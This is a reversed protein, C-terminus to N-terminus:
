CIARLCVVPERALLRRLVDLSPLSFTQSVARDIDARVPDEAMQPFPLLKRFALRDFATALDELDERDLSAFNPVPLRALVPKKFACWAGRTEERVAVLSLVGLTSNMWLVLAKRALPLLSESVRGGLRFPWWVNALAPEPLLVATLRHTNFWLREAMMVEGARPWLLSLRRLPRGKAAAARPVLYKNPKQAMSTVVLSDHGWLAPYPTPTDSTTFGDHIDRGDPGFVGLDGLAVLPLRVSAAGPISVEYDRVLSFAARVLDTQAFFIPSWEQTSLKSWSVEISEGWVTGDTQLRCSGQGDVSAPSARLATDALTLAEIISRPNRWLNLCITADSETGADDTKKRAVLLIESLDTNESFNWREPDHSVVLYEVAYNERLLQRTKGWAVGSVLARPLVLAMRGGPKLLRDAAVVFVAGLGATSSALIDRRRLLRRLKEQARKREALPLSGFLLNHGVSRTFPPNMVCLDLLPFSAIADARGSGTVRGHPSAEEIGLTERKGVHRIGLSVQAPLLVVSGQNVGEALLDLSGLHNGSGGLKLVYIHMNDFNVSPSLLAITTATLHAARLLVDYGHIVEEVLVKQLEALRPLQGKRCSERVHNDSIAQVSAMLLTGTGSALDAVRLGRLLDLDSWDLIWAEPRLALRLLLTAAPVSTYYAGFYKAEALLRHYIRGALDHRLAAKRAIIQRAVRAMKRLAAEIGPDAPLSVLVNHALNFIPVYDIDEIIYRWHDTLAETFSTSELLRSLPKVSSNFAALHEQFIMANAIILSAQQTNSRERKKQSTESM